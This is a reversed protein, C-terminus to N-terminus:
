LDGPLVIGLTKRQTRWLAIMAKFRETEVAALNHKEGPDTELDFLEFKSEDFPPDLTTLKWRGQRVFARGGHYITTVYSDDHVPSLDTLLPLLSEGLMPRVSGDDPYKAGALELFTPALDMVTLYTDNIVGRSAVQPGAAIFPATIGGERTYRKFRSFSPSGAEAWQPGYSVWSTARGMNGYANDYRARIFDVYSGRNYFDEGAPGNDSMFVILTNDYLDRSKLFDVLRGVHHDLNEVMGAYLEMKRAESRQEEGTLDEWRIIDENRRPLDAETPIIGAEKLSAFNKERLVDYGADYRGRYLDLHEEPVQLPWHPSTYAAYGFFPQDDERNADIFEMLRDTFVETTYGGEPLSSAQGDARYTSGGEFFGVSNFHNAAGDILHFSREFGAALPGHEPVM